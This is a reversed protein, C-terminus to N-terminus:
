FMFDNILLIYLEIVILLYLLLQQVDLNMLELLGIIDQYLCKTILVMGGLNEM